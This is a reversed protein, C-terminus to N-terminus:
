PMQFNFPGMLAIVNAWVRDTAKQVLGVLDGSLRGREFGVQLEYAMAELPSDRYGSQMLGVGYALLFRDVGLRDWQVVHVIEHFYLGESQQGDRVFFTDRYTIGSIPIAEFAALERLGMRSLPPFPPNGAVVVCRVRNLLEHPFVQALGPYDGGDVPAAQEHYTRLTDDVWQRVAPLAQRFQDIHEPPFNSQASDHEM